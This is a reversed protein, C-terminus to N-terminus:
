LAGSQALRALGRRIGRELAQLIPGTILPFVSQLEITYQVRCGEGAQSFRLTGLHHKMFGGKTIRYEILADRDFRTITEEIKVPGARLLRVSGLGNPENADPAERIRRVPLGFLASLNDHNALHAFVASPPQAFDQVVTMSKFTM